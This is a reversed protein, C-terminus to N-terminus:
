RVAAAMNGASILVTVSILFMFAVAAAIGLVFTLSNAMEGICGTIRKESVPELLVATIRYLIVIALIKLLPILCIIVVGIMIAMGAANKILLTCGVVADAADSLCKGVVPVFASIAFKATKGAIGDVVAGLSGQVSVIGVFVTLILGTGWATLQRFFGALKSIQIKDSISDVISIMTSLFIVPMFINKIVAATIEVMTILVPHFIGATTISGGSLLLTLLIPITAHIFTTMGDIIERGMNLASTFSLVLVSIIVMYCVFFALEGVSESLFSTQLNKLVACLVALVVLKILIGINQYIEKLLYKLIRGLFGAIGIDLKGKAANEIIKSPDYGPIIEEIGASSYKKLQKELNRIQASSAQERLIQEKEDEGGGSTEQSDAAMCFATLM